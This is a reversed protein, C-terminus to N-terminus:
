LAYVGAGRPAGLWGLMVAGLWGLRATPVGWGPNRLVGLAAWSGWCSSACVGVRACLGLTGTWFQFPQLGLRPVGAQGHIMMPIKEELTLARLLSSVRESLPLTPNLWPQTDHLGEDPVQPQEPVAPESGSDDTPPPSPSPEPAPTTNDPPLLDSNDNPPATPEEASVAPAAPASPQQQEQQQQAPQEQQQQQQDPLQEASTAEPTEFADYAHDSPTSVDAEAAASEQQRQRRHRHRHRHRWQQQPEQQQRAQMGLQGSSVPGLGDAAAASTGAHAASLDQGAPNAPFGTSAQGAATSPDLSGAPVMPQDLAAAVAAAADAPPAAAADSAVPAYSGALVADVATAQYQQLVRAHQAPKAAAAHTDPRQQQQAHPAQGAEPVGAAASHHRDVDAPATISRSTLSFALLTTWDVTPEAFATSDSRALLQTRKGHAASLYLFVLIAVARCLPLRHM